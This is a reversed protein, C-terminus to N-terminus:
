NEKFWQNVSFGLPRTLNLERALKLIGQRGIETEFVSSFVIDLQYKQCLQKLKQPSGAIAPKVVYVGRWGQQYCTELETLTAVSEDLAIATNSKQSLDLMTSFERPPLPQELFEVVGTKDAIKLWAIAEQYNLGGNADLRLKAGKLVSVLQSFIQLETELPQIAIKWKFTTRGKQREQQCISIAKEGHPLLYSYNLSDELVTSPSHLDEWATTFGFQCATLGSPIQNLTSERFKEQNLEQCFLLAQALSESGFWPLPAIEGKGVRGEQDVLYIIIGERVKWTGYHTVLPTLFPRQYTIFSFLIEM